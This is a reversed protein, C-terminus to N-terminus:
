KMKEEVREAAIRLAVSRPNEGKELSGKLVELAAKTIKEEVMEFMKEPSYGCYEAYSSTVGGGNAIFDPVVLIGKKWLEEEINERMPINAGEVVIKAKITNKNADNIVDTISAPILVDAEIGFVDDHSIHKGQKSDGVSKGEKKLNVLEEGELGNENYVGGRSDAVAIIKAGMKKLFKFTFTGVNGFGEIAVTTKKVDMGKLEVAVRAAHAVGFGTSGLEHPLGGLAAPKGTASKRDSTAEVFWQMEREGSSVDPGAIYYKPVLFAIKRAFSQVFQKKLEPSAGQKGVSSPPWVIGAKAGGFPLGCVANKWTMARALRSVEEVTVSPTMRIGGKGPGLATNDVVLFGEMGLKPDYVELIYEPGFKDKKIEFM